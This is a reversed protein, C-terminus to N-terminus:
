CCLCKVREREEGEYRETVPSCCLGGALVHRNRRHSAELGPRILADNLPTEPQLFPEARSREDHHHRLAHAEGAFIGGIPDLRSVTNLQKGVGGFTELIEVPQSSFLDIDSTARLSSTRKLLARWNQEFDNFDRGSLLGYYGIVLTGSSSRVRHRAYGIVLTGSSSRVRHRAYGIALTGTVSFFRNRSTALTL